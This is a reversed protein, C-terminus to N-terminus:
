MRSVSTDDQRHLQCTEVDSTVSTILSHLSRCHMDPSNPSGLNPFPNRLHDNYPHPGPYRTRLPLAKGAALACPAQNIRALLLGQMEAILWTNAAATQPM